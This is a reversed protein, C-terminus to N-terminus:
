AESKQQPIQNEAASAEPEKPAPTVIESCTKRVDLRDYLQKYRVSFRLRRDCRKGYFEARFATNNFKWKKVKKLRGGCQDCVCHFLAPDM